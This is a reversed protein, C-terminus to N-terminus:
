KNKHDDTCLQILIIFQFGLYELLWFHFLQVLLAILIVVYDFHHDGM